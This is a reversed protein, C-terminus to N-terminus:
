SRILKLLRKRYNSFVSLVLGTGGRRWKTYLRQFFEAGSRILLFPLTLYVMPSLSEVAYSNEEMETRTIRQCAATDAMPLTGKWKGIAATSIQSGRDQAQATTSNIWGVSLMNADYQLNLFQCIREVTAEPKSVLDEYRIRIIRGPFNHQVSTGARVATKWAISDWIPDYNWGDAVRRKKSALIDRPDRVLEIAQADPLVASMEDFQSVYGALKDLWRKKNNNRALFDFSLPYLATHSRNGQAQQFLEDVDATSVNFDDLLVPGFNENSAFNVRTHTTCIVKLLYEIYARLTADDELDPFNRITTPLTAFFRTEGGSVFIDPHRGLIQQLLTTGSHMYAIVLIPPGLEQQDQSMMKTSNSITNKSIEIELHVRQYIECGGGM